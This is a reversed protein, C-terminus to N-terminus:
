SQGSKDGILLDSQAIHDLSGGGIQSYLGASATSASRPREVSPQDECISLRVLFIAQKSTGISTLYGNRDM